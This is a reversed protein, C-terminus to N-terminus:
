KIISISYLLYLKHSILSYQYRNKKQQDKSQECCASRCYVRSVLRLGGAAARFVIWVSYASCILEIPKRVACVVSITVQGGMDDQDIVNGEIFAHQILAALEVSVDTIELLPLWYACAFTWRALAVGTCKVSLAM